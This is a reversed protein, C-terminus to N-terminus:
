ELHKYAKGKVTIFRGYRHQVDITANQELNLICKDYRFDDRILYQRPTGM